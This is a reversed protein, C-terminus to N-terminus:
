KNKGQIYFILIINGIILMKELCIRKNEYNDKKYILILIINPNNWIILQNYKLLM